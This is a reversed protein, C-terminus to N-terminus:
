TFLRTNTDIYYEDIKVPLKLSFSIDFSFDFNISSEVSKVTRWNTKFNYSYGFAKDDQPQNAQLRNFNIKEPKDIIYFSGFGDPFRIPNSITTTKVTPTKRAVDLPIEYTDYPTTILSAIPSGLKTGGKPSITDNTFEIFYEVTSETSTNRLVDQNQGVNENFSELFIDEYTRSDIERYLNGDQDASIKYQKFEDYDGLKILVSPGNDSVNGNLAWGKYWKTAHYLIPPSPDTLSNAANQSVFYKNSLGVTISNYFLKLPGESESFLTISKTQNADEQVLSGSSSVYDKGAAKSLEITNAIITGSSIQQNNTSSQSLVTIVVPGANTSISAYSSFSSHFARGNTKAIKGYAGYGSDFIASQIDWTQNLDYVNLNSYPQQVQTTVRNYAVETFNQVNLNSSQGVSIISQVSPPIITGEFDILLCGGRNLFATIKQQYNTIDTNNDVVLILFDFSRAQQTTVSELDVTWYEEPNEQLSDATSVPNAFNYNYINIPNGSENLKRFIKYHEEYSQRGAKIVGVNVIGGSEDSVNALRAAYDYSRRVKGIIRWNFMEYNRNDSIAKKNVYINYGRSDFSGGFSFRDELREASQVSYTNDYKSGYDIVTAEETMQKFLPISNINESYNIVQNVLNNNNDLEIKPYHLKLGNSEVDELLIIIRALNEKESVFKEEYKELIIKYKLRGLQDSYLAGDTTTVFIDSTDYSEQKKSIENLNSTSILNFYQKGAYEFNDVSMTKFNEQVTFFKSVYYSYIYDVVSKEGFLKSNIKKIDVYTLNNLCTTSYNTIDFNSSAFRSGRSECDFLMGTEDALVSYQDNKQEIFNERISASTDL